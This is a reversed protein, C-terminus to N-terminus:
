RNYSGRGWWAMVREGEWQFDRCLALGGQLVETGLIFLAYGVEDLLQGSHTLLLFLRYLSQSIFLPQEFALNLLQLLLVREDYFLSFAQLLLVSLALLEQAQVLLVEGLLLLFEVLGDGLEAVGPVGLVGVGM